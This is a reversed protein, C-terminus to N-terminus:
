KSAMSGINSFLSESNYAKSLDDAAGYVKMVNNVGTSAGGGYRTTTSSSPYATGQSQRLRANQKQREEEEKKLKDLEEQTQNQPTKASAAQAMLMWFYQQLLEPSVGSLSEQNKTDRLVDPVPM